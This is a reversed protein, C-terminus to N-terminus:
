DASLVYPVSDYRFSIAREGARISITADMSKVALIVFFLAASQGM